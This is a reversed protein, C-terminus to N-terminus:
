EGREFKQPFLHVGLVDHIDIRYRGEPVHVTIIRDKETIWLGFRREEIVRYKMTWEGREYRCFNEAYEKLEKPIKM